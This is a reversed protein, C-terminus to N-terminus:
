SAASARTGYLSYVVEPVQDRFAKATGIVPVLETPRLRGTSVLLWKGCVEFSYSGGDALLWHMMRADVFDNAFKRDKSKVTFARNFEDSEFEIDGFGLGDALRSLLDEPSISLASCAAEIETVVCEFRHTSKSGAGSSSSAEESYWYDFATLDTGNWDGWVVNEIGRGDGRRFLVFPLGLLGFPDQVSYQFGFQRAFASFQDRRRQKLLISAIAIGTAGLVFVYVVLLEM